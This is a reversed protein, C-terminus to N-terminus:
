VLGAYAGGDVLLSTGTVFRAQQSCLFAGVAGFDAADGLRGVPVSAALADLGEADAVSTLRATAHLGPQLANVTVGDAAVERATVKLFAGLAARATSSAILTAIPQRAGISTIAVVRGWRQERMPPIAEQCMAIASRCNLDFAESYADLSTSAFTGPPPGGANAVLIDVGGLADRAAAVFGAAGAPTSVDAVLPVAGNGVRGAAAEIADRRRGCLAVHVGEAALAAATAYGLGESAAAVAARRGAIGLDV